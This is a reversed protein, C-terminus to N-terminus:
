DELFPQPNETINRVRIKFSATMEPPIIAPQGLDPLAAAIADWVEKIEALELYRDYVLDIADPFIQIKLGREKALNVVEGSLQFGNLPEGRFTISQKEPGHFGSGQTDYGKQRLAAVADFVQPEIEEEYVGLRKEAETPEPNAQIRQKFKERMEHITRDRLRTFQRFMDMQEPTFQYFERLKELDEDSGESLIQDIVEEDNLDREPMMEAESPRPGSEQFM